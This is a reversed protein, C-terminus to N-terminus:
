EVLDVSRNTNDMEIGMEISPTTKRNRSCRLVGDRVSTEEIHRVLLPQEEVISADM